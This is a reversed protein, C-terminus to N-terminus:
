IDLRAPVAVQKQLLRPFPPAPLKQTGCPQPFPQGRASGRAAPPPKRWRQAPPGPIALVLGAGGSPAGPCVTVPLGTALGLQRQRCPQRQGQKGRRTTHFRWGNPRQVEARPVPPTRLRGWLASCSCSCPLAPGAGRRPIDGPAAAPWVPRNKHGLRLSVPILWGAWSPCALNPKLNKPARLLAPSDRQEQSSYNEGPCAANRSSWLGVALDWCVWRM